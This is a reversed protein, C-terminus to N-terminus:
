ITTSHSPHPKGTLQSFLEIFRHVTEHYSNTKLMEKRLKEAATQAPALNVLTRRIAHHMSLPDSESCWSICDDFDGVMARTDPSDVMVLPLSSSIAQPVFDDLADNASPQIFLDAAKFVDGLDVFTGPMAVNQRVGHYKFHRHLDNRAPGDGILWFRLDPWINVLNPIAQALTTMGGAESMAGVCVVVLSDRDTALDGNVAALCYRSQLRAPGDRGALGTGAVIGSAIRHVRDRRFGASLTAQHATARSVVVADAVHLANQLRRRHRVPATYLIDSESGAGAHHVVSIQKNRRAAEVVLASEERMTSQYLIDFEAAHERLWSEIHRLYRGLSWESRPAAAPRHVTIERHCIQDPWSSAYRPTLVEVNMGSRLLGDALRVTRSAVDSSLHPWYHRAVM